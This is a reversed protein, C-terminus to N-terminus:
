VLMACFTPSALRTTKGESASGYGVAVMWGLILTQVASLMQLDFRVM